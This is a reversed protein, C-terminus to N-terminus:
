EVEDLLARRQAPTLRAFADQYAQGSLRSMQDLVDGNANATAAAPINRLTVPPAEKPKRSATQQVAQAVAEGKTVPIGRLACVVKHAEEILEAYERGANDPDAGIAQLATDFQKQAKADAMYDVQEKSRAILRQLERQQYQAQTQQNAELLTEARIRQATLEELADSIRSEEAAFEEAGIEGDMLKKMAEAKAKLLETRQAKYETPVEAKFQQIAPEQVAEVTEPPSEETELPQAEAKAPDTPEADPDEPDVDRDDAEASAEATLEEDDGFPDEGKEQAAKIQELVKLEEPTLM